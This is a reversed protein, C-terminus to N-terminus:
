EHPYFIDQIEQAICHMLTEDGIFENIRNGNHFDIRMSCDYKKSTAKVIRALVEANANKNNIYIKRNM